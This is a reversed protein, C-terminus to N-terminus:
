PLLSDDIGAGPLLHQRIALLVPKYKALRAVVQDLKGLLEFTRKLITKEEEPKNPQPAMIVVVGVGKNLAERLGTIGRIRYEAIARRTTELLDLLLERLDPDLSAQVVADFLQNVEENLRLLEEQQATGESYFEAIKSACFALDRLVVPALHGTQNSWGGDIGHTSIGAKLSPFGGLYLEHDIDPIDRILKEARDAQELLLGLGRYIAITDSKDQIELVDAWVHRATVRAAVEAVSYKQTISLLAHLRGAPNDMNIKM